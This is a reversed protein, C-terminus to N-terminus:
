ACDDCVGTAPLQIFHVPCLEVAREEAPSGGGGGPSYGPLEVVPEGKVAIYTKGIWAAAAAEHGVAIYSKSYPTWIATWELDRLAERVKAQAEVPMGFFRMADGLSDHPTRGVGELEKSCWHCVEITALDDSSAETMPYGYVHSCMPLHLRSGDKVRFLTRGGFMEVDRATDVQGSMHGGHIM